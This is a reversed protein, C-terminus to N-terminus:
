ISFLLPHIYSSFSSLYRIHYHTVIGSMHDTSDGHNAVLQSRLREVELQLDTCIHIYIHILTHTHLSLSLTLSFFFYLSLLFCLSPSLPSPLSFSLFQFLSHSLSPSIPLISLSFSFLSLLNRFCCLTLQNFIYFLYYFVFM